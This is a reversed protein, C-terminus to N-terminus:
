SNREFVAINTVSYFCISKEDKERGRANIFKKLRDANSQCASGLTPAHRQVPRFQVVTREDGVTNNEKNKPADCKFLRAEVITREDGFANNDLNIAVSQEIFDDIIITNADAKKAMKELKRRCRDYGNDRISECKQFRVFDCSESVSQVFQVTKQEQKSGNNSACATLFLLVYTSITIRM